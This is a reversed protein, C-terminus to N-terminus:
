AIRIHVHHRVRELLMRPDGRNFELVHSLQFRCLEPESEPHANFVSQGLSRVHWGHIAWVMQTASIPENSQALSSRCMASAARKILSDLRQCRDSWM